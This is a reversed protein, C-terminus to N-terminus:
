DGLRQLPLPTVQALFTDGQLVVSVQLNVGRRMGCQEVSWSGGVGASLEVGVRLGVAHLQPLLRGDVTLRQLPAVIPVESHVECMQFNRQM